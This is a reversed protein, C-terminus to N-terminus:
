VQKLLMNIAASQQTSKECLDNLLDLCSLENDIFAEIDAFKQELRDVVAKIEEIQFSVGESHNVTVARLNSLCRLTKTESSINAVVDNFSDILNASM